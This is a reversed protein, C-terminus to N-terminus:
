REYAHRKKLNIKKTDLIMCVDTTNFAYDVFAGQGVLGGLRLYSKILAPVQIMAAKRDVQSYPIVNMNIAGAGIAIPCLDDPARYNHHLLSLAPALAGVDTGHFSAVGFLLDINHEAVYEALGQWLVLMAMGGRYEARLCSRGLELLKRGSQRLVTLDYEEQSYYRGLAPEKHDPLLRYVGIVGGLLDDRADDILLLHDFFPDYADRELRNEHDILDGGGALEDVFVDYRVRQAARFDDDSQALKTRYQPKLIAM